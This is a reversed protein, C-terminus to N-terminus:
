KFWNLPNLYWFRKSRIYGRYLRQQFEEWEKKVYSDYFRVYLDDDKTPEFSLFEWIITRDESNIHYNKPSINDVKDLEIDHVRVIIKASEIKQYWAEGTSLLYKFYRDYQRDDVGSPMDYKVKIVRNSRSKFSVKWVYWPFKNDGIKKLLKKHTESLLKIRPDYKKSLESIAVSVSDKINGQPYDNKWMMTGDIGYSNYISDRKHIKEKIIEDLDIETSYVNELESPAKIHDWTLIQDDVTIRFKKKDNLFYRTGFQYYQFNMEPFGVEISISDGHNFLNFICEVSASDHHLDVYVIESVLQIRCSDATYVGKAIMPNPSIDANIKKSFVFIIITFFIILIRM